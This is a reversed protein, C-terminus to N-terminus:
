PLFNATVKRAAGITVTCTAGSTSDCGSWGNFISLLQPKATLTVVTGYNFSAWCTPGCNIQGPSPPSSVSTVTGNGILLSTKEVTLTFTQITFTATVSRAANMTVTCTAGSTSDCGAWATFSSGVAPTATLTVLTGYGYVASCTGGCNIGSSGAPNSTSTVTGNGTGLKTLTLTETVTFNSASTATGGSTTVSVPGSAAGAPVISQIVTDSTVSFSASLGNFAVATAGTFSTGSITVTTGAPGSTPSFSTITPPNVVAFNSTSTATGAPASVSIPGTSAGAPVTAQIVTNSVVTFSAAVRNFAVATAGTFNTGNITVTTGVPGSTPSFSSITPPNIVTFSNASTATGSPASVTIPGTVAGTPVTAQLITDSTITFSGAVGNFAVATVGTFGSGNVTVATGAPGSTPSFSTIALPNVVTFNSASTVTGSPASVTIPGTAARTPVTAQIATDSTITFSAGLGNFAVASAGTFGTGNITVMTGAPGSAPSFSTITPPSVVTFNTASTASGAPATVTIPGTTAGPPVTAQIATDSTITFSAAVGNFAVATAGTFATGNITVATGVPGSAPNFSSVGVTTGGATSGGEWGSFTFAQTYAEMGVDGSPYSGDTTYTFQSVGNKSVELTNGDATLRWKDGAVITPSFTQVAAFNGDPTMKYIGSSSPSDAYLFLLWGTQGANTRDIRVVPGGGGSSVTGLTVESYQAQPPAISWVGSLNHNPDIGSALGGAKKFGHYHPLPYWRDGEDLPNENGAFNTSTWTGSSVPAPGTSWSSIVANTVASDAYVLIGSSGSVYRTSDPGTNYIFDRVGNKLGYLVPGRAILRLRDGDVVPSTAILTNATYTTGRNPDPVGADLRYLFNGGGGISAWWLYNSDTGPGSTQIRVLPGVNNSTTAIHGVVIESYQDPPVASTSRSGAHNLPSLKDAMAGNNKQIQTGYPSFATLSVWSGNESLPDEAGDFSSSAIPSDAITMVSLLMAASMALLARVQVRPHWLSRQLESLNM